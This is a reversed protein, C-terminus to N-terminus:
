AVAWVILAVVMCIAIVCVLLADEAHDSENLPKSTLVVQWFDEEASRSRLIKPEYFLGIVVKGTNYPAHKVNQKVTNMKNVGTLLNLTPVQQQHGQATGYRHGIRLQEQAFSSHHTQGTTIARRRLSPLVQVRNVV